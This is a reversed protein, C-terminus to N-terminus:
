IGSPCKSIWWVLHTMFITFATSFLGIALPNNIADPQYCFEAAAVFCAFQFVKWPVDRVVMKMEPQFTSPKAVEQSVM